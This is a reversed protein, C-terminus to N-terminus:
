RPPWFCGFNLYVPSLVTRPLCASVESIHLIIFLQTWTAFPVDCSHFIFPLCRPAVCSLVVSISLTTVLCSVEFIHFKIFLQTWTAFFYMAFIFFSLRATPYQVYYSSVFAWHQSWANEVVLGLRGESITPAYRQTALLIFCGSFYAISHASSRYSHESRLCSVLNNICKMPFSLNWLWSKRTWKWHHPM